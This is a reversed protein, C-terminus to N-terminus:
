SHTHTHSYYHRFREAKKQKVIVNYIYFFIKKRRLLLGRLKGGKKVEGRRLAEDPDSPDSRCFELTCPTHIGCMSTVYVLRADYILPVPRPPAKAAGPVEGACTLSCM